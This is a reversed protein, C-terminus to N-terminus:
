ATQQPVSIDTVWCTDPTTMFGNRVSREALGSGNCTLGIALQRKLHM